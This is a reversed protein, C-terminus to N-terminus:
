EDGSEKKKKVARFSSNDGFHFYIRGNLEGNEICAWGRGCAPDMEDSGDWTFEIREQGNSGEVQCDMFGVVLGFQFDGTRDTNFKLYGPVEMDIFSKDWLEMEEIMWTGTFM